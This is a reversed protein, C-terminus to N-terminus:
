CIERLLLGEIKCAITTGEPIDKNEIYIRWHQVSPIIIGWKLLDEQDCLTEKDQGYQYTKEGLVLQWQIPEEYAGQVYVHINKIILRKPWNFENDYCLSYQRATMKKEDRIVHPVAELFIDCRKESGAYKGHGREKDPIPENVVRIIPASASNWRSDYILGRDRM